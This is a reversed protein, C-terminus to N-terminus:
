EEAEESIRTQVQDQIRALWSCIEDAEKSLKSLGSWRLYDSLRAVDDFSMYAATRAEILHFMKPDTM